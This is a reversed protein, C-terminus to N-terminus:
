LGIKRLVLTKLLNVYMQSTYKYGGVGYLRPVPSRYIEGAFNGDPMAIPTVALSIDRTELKFTCM